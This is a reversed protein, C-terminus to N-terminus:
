RECTQSVISDLPLSCHRTASRWIWVLTTSNVLVPRLYSTLLIMSPRPFLFYQLSVVTLQGTGLEQTQTTMGYTPFVANPTRQGHRFLIAVGKLQADSSGVALLLLVSPVSVLRMKASCSLVLKPVLNACSRISGFATNAIYINLTSIQFNKLVRKYISLHPVRTVASKIM